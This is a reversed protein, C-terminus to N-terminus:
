ASVINVLNTTGLVALCVIRYYGVHPPQPRPEHVLQVHAHPVSSLASVWKAILIPLLSLITPQLIGSVWKAILIPHLSLITPQLFIIGAALLSIIPM